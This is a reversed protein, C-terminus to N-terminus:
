NIAFRNETMNVLHFVWKREMAAQRLEACTTQTEDFNQGGSTSVISISHNSKSTNKTSGASVTTTNQTPVLLKSASCDNVTLDPYNRIKEVIVQDEDGKSSMDSCFM